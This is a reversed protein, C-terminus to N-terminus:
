PTTFDGPLAPCEFKKDTLGQLVAPLAVRLCDFSKPNDHFVIISGPRAHNLVNRAVLLGDAGPRFDGALVDWLVIPFLKGVSRAQLPGIRGYPPRFLNGGVAQQGRVVNALYASNTTKWGNPHDWTHHGVAHGERRIRALLEPNEAANKGLCFFTAKAGHQKLEDLVWSTAEPHPGDDFTLFVERGAVPLRAIAGPLLAAAVRMAAAHLM